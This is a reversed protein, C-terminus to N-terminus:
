LKLKSKRIEWLCNPEKCFECLSVTQLVNIGVNINFENKYHKNTAIIEFDDLMKQSNHVGIIKQVSNVYNDKSFMVKQLKVSKSHNAEDQPSKLINTSDVRNSFGFFKIFQDYYKRYYKCYEESLNKTTVILFKSLSEKPIFTLIGKDFQHEQLTAFPINLQNNQLSVYASHTFKIENLPNEFIGTQSYNIYESPIQPLSINHSINIKFLSKLSKKTKKKEIAKVFLEYVRDCRSLIAPSKNNGKNLDLIDQNIMLSKMSEQYKTNVIYSINQIFIDWLKIILRNVPTSTFVKLFEKLNEKSDNIFSELVFVKNYNEIKYHKNEDFAEFLGAIFDL